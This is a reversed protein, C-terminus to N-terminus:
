LAKLYDLIMLCTKCTIADSFRRVDLGTINQFKDLRYILTNRHIFQQRATEAISLDNDFFAQLTILIEEDISEFVEMNVRSNIFALCEEKPLNYLLRGFGLDSFCFVHERQFFISGIHMALVANKYAEKLQEFSLTAKDFSVSCRMYADTELIDVIEKASQLIEEASPAEPFHSIIVLHNADIELVEDNPNSCFSKLLSPIEETYSHVTELYLLVRPANEDIHFKHIGSLAEEASVEGALFKSYFSSRSELINAHSLLEKLKNLTEEESLSSDNISFSIGSAQEIKKLLKEKQREFDM